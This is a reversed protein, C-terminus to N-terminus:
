GLIDLIDGAEGTAHEVGAAAELEVAAELEAARAAYDPMLEDLTRQRKKGTAVAAQEDEGGVDSSLDQKSIQTRWLATM